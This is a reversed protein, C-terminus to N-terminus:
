DDILALLRDEVLEVVELSLGKLGQSLRRMDGDMTTSDVIVLTERAAIVNEAIRLWTAKNSEMAVKVDKKLDADLVSAKRPLFAFIDLGRIIKELDAYVEVLLRHASKLQKIVAANGELGADCREQVPGMILSLKHKQELISQKMYEIPGPEGQSAVHNKAVDAGKTTTTYTRPKGCTSRDTLTTYSRGSSGELAASQKSQNNAIPHFGLWASLRSRVASNKPAHPQILKPDFVLTFLHLYANVLQRAAFRVDNTLAKRTGCDISEHANDQLAATPLLAKM